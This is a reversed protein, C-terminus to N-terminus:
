PILAVKGVVRRGLLDELARAVDELPYETPRAPQISGREVLALLDTLLAGQEAPHRM